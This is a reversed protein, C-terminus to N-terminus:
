ANLIDAVTKTARGTRKIYAQAVAPVQRVLRLYKEDSELRERVKDYAITGGDAEVADVVAGALADKDIKAGVGGTREAWVGAKAKEIWDAIEAAADAMTGPNQKDNLVTNAVNGAKTHFGFIANMTVFEGAKGFQETFSEGEDGLLTYCAGTADEIKDVEAGDAGVYTRKSVQKRKSSDDSGTETEAARPAAATETVKSKAKAM